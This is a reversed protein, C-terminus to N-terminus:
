AGPGATEATSAPPRELEGSEVLLEYRMTSAKEGAQQFLTSAGDFDGGNAALLGAEVLEMVAAALHDLREGIPGDVDEREGESSSM